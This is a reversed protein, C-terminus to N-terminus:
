SLSNHHKFLAARALSRPRTYTKSHSVASVKVGLGFDRRKLIWTKYPSALILRTQRVLAERDAVAGEPWQSWYIDIESRFSMERESLGYNM